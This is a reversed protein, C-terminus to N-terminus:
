ALSRRRCRCAALGLRAGGRRHLPRLLTLNEPSREAEDEFDVQVKFLKPFDPDFEALTYYLQREGVLVVKVSLPIPDPELSVTSALSMQEAASEIKIVGTKLARKLAEWTFPQLLVARADVILYGGNAKHLAGPSSSRSIPSSRGWRRWM